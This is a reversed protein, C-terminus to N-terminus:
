HGPGKVPKPPEVEFFRRALADRLDDLKAYGCKQRLRWVHAKYAAVSIGGLIERTTESQVGCITNELIVVESRTLEHAKAFADLLERLAAIRTQWVGSPPENGTWADGRGFGREGKKRM